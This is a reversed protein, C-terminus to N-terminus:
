SRSLLTLHIGRYSHIITIMISALRMESRRALILCSILSRPIEFARYQRRFSRVASTLDALSKLRSRRFDNASKVLATREKRRWYRANSIGLDSMEQRMSALRESIRKADIMIVIM